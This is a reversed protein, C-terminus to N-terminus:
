LLLTHFYIICYCLNLSKKSPVFRKNLTVKLLGFLNKFSYMLEQYANNQFLYQM